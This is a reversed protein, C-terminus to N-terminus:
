RSAIVFNIVGQGIQIVCGTYWIENIDTSAVKYEPSDSHIKGDVTNNTFAVTNNNGREM